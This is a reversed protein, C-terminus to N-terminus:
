ESSESSNGKRNEYDNLAKELIDKIIFSLTADFEEGKVEEITMGVPAELVTYDLELSQSEDNQDLENISFRTKEFKGDLINIGWVEKGESRIVWPEYKAQM